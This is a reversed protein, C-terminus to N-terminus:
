VKTVLGGLTYNDFEVSELTQGHITYSAEFPKHLSLRLGYYRVSPRTSNWSGKCGWAQLADLNLIVSFILPILLHHYIIGHYLVTDDAFLKM